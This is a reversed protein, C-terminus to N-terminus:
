GLGKLNPTLERRQREGEGGRGGIEGEQASYLEGDECLVIRKGPPAHRIRSLARSHSRRERTVPEAESFTSM